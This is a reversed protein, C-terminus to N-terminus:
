QILGIGGDIKIDSGTIFAADDSALFGILKAVESATGFRKLPVREIISEMFEDMSNGGKNNIETTIPGPNITNVRIKRPALEIATTRTYSNLAAKTASYISTIPTAMYASVSSVNIVSAGDSLLAAFKEITFIAGKLNTDMLEDYAQETYQGLPTALFIGANVVLIDVKGFTANVKEVLKETDGISGADALIATVKGGLKVAAEDIAQQKRGTIIVTAGKALLEKAAEFGIGSNAGTVVAVKNQLDNM